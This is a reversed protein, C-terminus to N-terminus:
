IKSFEFDYKPPFIGVEEAQQICAKMTKATFVRVDQTVKESTGHGFIDIILKQELVTVPGGQEDKYIWETQTATMQYKM